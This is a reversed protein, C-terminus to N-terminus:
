HRSIDLGITIVQLNDFLKSETSINAKVTPPLSKMSRLNIKYHWLGINKTYVSIRQMGNTIQSKAM